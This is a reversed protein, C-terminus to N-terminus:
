FDDPKEWDELIRPSLLISITTTGSLAEHSDRTLPNQTFNASKLCPMGRLRPVDVDAIFNKEVNLEELKPLSYIVRPLTVFSNHSIDLKVVKTLQNIEDPLKSLRNNALILETISSFKPGLSPPLKTIVNFSLDCSRLTTHRMLHFVADPVQMLQCQSLDLNESEQADNCRRVVRIIARGVLRTCMMAKHYEAASTEGQSNTLDSLQPRM